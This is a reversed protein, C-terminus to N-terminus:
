AIYKYGINQENKRIQNQQYKSFFYDIEEDTYNKIASIQGRFLLFDRKKRISDLNDYNNIYKFDKSKISYYTRILKKLNKPRKNEFPKLDIFFKSIIKDIKFLLDLDNIESFYFLWGYNKNNAILGTIMDNLEEIFVIKLKEFDNKLYEPRREKNVFCTKFWSIKAAIRRLFIEINKQAVSIKTSSISYSLFTFSAYGLSNQETKEKNIDLELKELEKIFNNIRFESFSSNNMLLIDDVYRRYFYKRKCIMKDFELLYIQALINSISLGQPVGKEVKYKYYQNRKSNQPVTINTIALLILAKINEPVKKDDLKSMLIQHNLTDYFKELDLKLFYVELTRNKLFDKYM